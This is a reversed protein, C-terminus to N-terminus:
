FLLQEIKSKLEPINKQVTLWIDGFRLGHYGHAAVNRLGVVNRVPIDTKKKFEESLHKALEGINILTMATARKISEDNLFTDETLDRTSEEM